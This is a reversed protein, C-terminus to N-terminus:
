FCRSGEWNSFWPGDFPLLKSANPDNKDKFGFVQNSITVASYLLLLLLNSSFFVNMWTSLPMLSIECNCWRLYYESVFCEKCSSLCGSLSVSPLATPNLLYFKQNMTIKNQQLSYSHKWKLNLHFKPLQLRRFGMMLLWRGWTVTECLYCVWPM